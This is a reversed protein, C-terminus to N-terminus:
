AGTPNTEARQQNFWVRWRVRRLQTEPNRRAEFLERFQLDAQTDIAKLAAAQIDESVLPGPHAEMAMAEAVRGALIKDNEPDQGPAPGEGALELRHVSPLLSKLADYLAAGEPTLDDAKNVLFRDRGLTEAIGRLLSDEYPGPRIGMSGYLRELITQVDILLWRTQDEQTPEPLPLDPPASAEQLLPQIGTWIQGLLGAGALPQAGAPTLGGAAGLALLCVLTRGFRKIITM